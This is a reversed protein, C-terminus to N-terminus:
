VSGVCQIINKQHVRLLSLADDDSTKLIDLAQERTLMAGKLINDALQNWDTM